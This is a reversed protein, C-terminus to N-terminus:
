RRDEDWDGESPYKGDDHEDGNEVLHRTRFTRGSHVHEEFLQDRLVALADNGGSAGIFELLRWKDKRYLRQYVEQQVYPSAFVIYEDTFRTSVCYHILIHTQADNADLKRYANLLWDLDVFDIAEELLAQQCGVQTYGLVYRAIGGWRRYRDQVVTEPTAPYLLKRCRLIEDRSWVPM